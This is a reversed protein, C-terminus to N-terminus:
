RSVLLKPLVCGMELNNWRGELNRLSKWFSEGCTSDVLGTEFHTGTQGGFIDLLFDNWISRPFKLARLKDKVNQRIHHMCRLHVANPFAINFSKILEGEGDTGFAKINVLKPNLRILTSAFYYFARFTKTQHILVPGLVIPHNGKQTKVLLNQYTIPTVYFPGLNFTPDIGIIGFRDRTCFREM